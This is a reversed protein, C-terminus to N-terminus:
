PEGTSGKAEVSHTVSRRGCQRRVGDRLNPTLDPGNQENVPHHRGVTSRRVASKPRPELAATHPAGSVRAACARGVDACLPGCRRSRGNPMTLRATRSKQDALVIEISKGNVNVSIECSGFQQKLAAVADAAEQQAAELAMHAQQLREFPTTM